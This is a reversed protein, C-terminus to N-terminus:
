PLSTGLDTSELAGNVDVTIRWYHGDADKLILGKTADSVAVDKSVILIVNLSASEDSDNLSFISGNRDGTVDGLSTIDGDSTAGAAAVTIEQKVSVPLRRLLYTLLKVADNSKSFVIRPPM